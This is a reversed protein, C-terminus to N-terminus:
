IHSLHNAAALRRQGLSASLVDALDSLSQLNDRTQHSLMKGSIKNDTQSILTLRSACPAEAHYSTMSVLLTFTFVAECDTGKSTNLPKM